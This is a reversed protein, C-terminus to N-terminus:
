QDGSETEIALTRAVLAAHRAQNRDDSTDAISNLLNRVRETQRSTFVGNEILSLSAEAMTLLQEDTKDSIRFLSEYTARQRAIGQQQKRCEVCRVCDSELSFGLQEYWYKQESAFFIFSRDCDRCKRELDFYHTVAVTAPLQRDLDAAIATNAIRKTRESYASYDGYPWKKGIVSEYQAVIEDHTTANWHLHVGRDHPGPNLGTLKPRRGYRPHEVFEAYKDNPRKM